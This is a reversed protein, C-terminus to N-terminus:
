LGDDPMEVRVEELDHFLHTAEKPVGVGRFILEVDRDGAGPGGPHLRCDGVKGLGPFFERKEGVAKEAVANSLDSAPLAPFHHPEGLRPALREIRLFGAFENAALARADDGEDLGLGRGAHVVLSLRDALRGVFHVREGDGIADGGEAPHGHHHVFVADIDGVAAGLLAETGERGEGTM